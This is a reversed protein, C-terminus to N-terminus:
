PTWIGKSRLLKVGFLWISPIKIGVIKREIKAITQAKQSTPTGIAYKNKKSPIEKLPSNPRNSATWEYVAMLWRCHHAPVGLQSLLVRCSLFDARVPQFWPGLSGGWVWSRSCINHALFPINRECPLASGQGSILKLLSLELSIFIPPTIGTLQNWSHKNNEIIESVNRFSRLTKGIVLTSQITKSVFHWKTIIFTM